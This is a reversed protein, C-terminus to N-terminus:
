SSSSIRIDNQWGFESSGSVFEYIIRIHSLRKTLERIGEKKEVSTSRRARAGIGSCVGDCTMSRAAFCLSAPNKEAKVEYM